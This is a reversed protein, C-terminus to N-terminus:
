EEALKHLHQPPQGMVINHTETMRLSWGSGTVLCDGLANPAYFHVDQTAQCHPCEWLSETNRGCHICENRAMTSETLHLMRAKPTRALYNRAM